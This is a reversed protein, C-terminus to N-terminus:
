VEGADLCIRQQIPERHLLPGLGVACPSCFSSCWAMVDLEAITQCCCTVPHCQEASGHACVWASSVTVFMHRCTHVQPFVQLSRFPPHAAVCHRPIVLGLILSANCIGLIWATDVTPTGQALLISVFLEVAAKRSFVQRAHSFNIMLAVVLTGCHQAAQCRRKV